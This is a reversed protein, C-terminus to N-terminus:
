ATDSAVTCGTHRQGWSITTGSPAPPGVATRASEEGEEQRRGEVGADVWVGQDQWSGVRQLEFQLM